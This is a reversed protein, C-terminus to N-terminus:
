GFVSSIIKFFWDASHKRKTAFIFRINKYTWLWYQDAWYPNDIPFILYISLYILIKYNEVVAEYILIM